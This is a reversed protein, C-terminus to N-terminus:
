AGAKAAIAAGAGTNPDRELEAIHRDCQALDYAYRKAALYRAARLARVKTSYLAVSGKSWHRSACPDWANDGFRHAVSSSVAPEVRPVHSFFALWGKVEGAEPIPVDPEVPDGIWMAAHMDRELRLAEMAAQEKKTMM